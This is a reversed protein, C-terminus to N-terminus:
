QKKFDLKWVGQRSFQFGDKTFQIFNPGSYEFVFDTATLRFLPFKIGPAFEFFLQSSDSTIKYSTEIEISEYEGEFVKLDDLDTVPSIISLPQNSKYYHDLPM